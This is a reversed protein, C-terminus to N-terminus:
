WTVNLSQHSYVIYQCYPLRTIVKLRYFLLTRSPFLDGKFEQIHGIQSVLLFVDLATPSGHLGGERTHSPLSSIQQDLLFFGLMLIDFNNIDM